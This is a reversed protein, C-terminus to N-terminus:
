LGRGPRGSSAGFGEISAETGDIASLRGQVDQLRAFNQESPEDGLEREAEKLEKNLTRNKRHLTLVHTWWQRIDDSAAGERAPWDAFHTLAGEIRALIPGCDRALLAQRLAQATVHDLGAAAELMTRRLLDADANLFELDALEEAHSEILWPHNCAAILILAERPPLATRSGRVISSAQLRPSAPGLGAPAFGSGPAGPLPRRNFSDRREWRGSPSGRRDPAFRGPAPPPAVLNRLRERLDQRYYRRVAEDAISNTLENIRAELGARREPTDVRANETERTWLVEGLPRAGALV